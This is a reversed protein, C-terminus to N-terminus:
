TLEPRSGGFGSSGPQVGLEWALAAAAGAAPLLSGVPLWLLRRRSRQELALLISPFDWGWFIM